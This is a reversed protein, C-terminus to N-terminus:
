EEQFRKSVTMDVVGGRISIKVDDAAKRLVSREYGDWEPDEIPHNALDQLLDLPLDNESHDVEAAMAEEFADRLYGLFTRAAENRRSSSSSILLYRKEKDMVTKTSLHLDFKKGEAEIWFSVLTEGTLSLVLSMMEETLLELQLADKGSLGQYAAVKKSENVASEFDRGASNITITNSRM